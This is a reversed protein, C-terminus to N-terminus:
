SYNCPTLRLHERVKRTNEAGDWDVADIEGGTKPCFVKGKSKLCNHCCNVNGTDVKLPEAGYSKLAELVEERTWDALPATFEKNGVKWSTEGRLIPQEGNLWHKDDGRTGWIHLDWEIPAPTQPGEKATELRIDIACRNPDDVLDRVLMATDCNGDVAYQSVLGIDGTEDAVLVHASAPYSFVQLGTAIIIADVAAKQEKDWGDDFRLVGFPKQVELMVHLLLLSDAGGSFWLCLLKDQEFLDRIHAKLSGLQTM